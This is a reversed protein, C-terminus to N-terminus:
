LRAVKAPFFSLKVTRKTTNQQKGKLLNTDRTAHQGRSANYFITSTTRTTKWIDALLRLLSPSSKRFHKIKILHPHEQPMFVSFDTGKDSLFLTSLNHCCQCQLNVVGGDHCMQFSYKFSNLTNLHQTRILRQDIVCSGVLGISRSQCSHFFSFSACISSDNAHITQM